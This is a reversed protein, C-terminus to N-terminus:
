AASLPSRRPASAAAGGRDLSARHGALSLYCTLIMYPLFSHVLGIVIAPYTFLIGLSPAGPWISHVAIDILGGSRLVMTWSFIRVLGNSWFPLVIM